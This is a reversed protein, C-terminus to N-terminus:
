FYKFGLLSVKLPLFKHRREPVAFIYKINLYAAM